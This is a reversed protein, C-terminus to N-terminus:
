AAKEIRDLVGSTIESFGLENARGILRERRPAPIHNERIWKSVTARNTGCLRATDGAGGLMKVIDIARLPADAERQFDSIDIDEFGLDRLMLRSFNFWEGRIRLDAFRAHLEYEVTEDGVLLRILRLREWHAVQLANIRRVLVSGGAWSHGIKVPGVDGARIVYVPM